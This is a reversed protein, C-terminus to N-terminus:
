ATRIKEKFKDIDQLSYTYPARETDNSILIFKSVKEGTCINYTGSIIENEAIEFYATLSEIDKWVAVFNEKLLYCFQQEQETTHIMKLRDVYVTGDPAKTLYNMMGHIPFNRHANIKLEEWVKVPIAKQTKWELMKRRNEDSAKTM